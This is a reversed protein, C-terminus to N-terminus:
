FRNYFINATNWKDKPVPKGKPYGLCVVCLPDLHEPMSLLSRIALAREASPWVGCWVSGVGLANAALLINETAASCDLVWNLRGEGEIAKKMDGCVVILRSAEGAMKGFPMKEAFTKKLEKDSVVVFAWPQKNMATPAAMGAKLITNIVSDSIEESSYERVSTRSMICELAKENTQSNSDTSVTASSIAEEKENEDNRDNLAYALRISVGVLAAALLLIIWNTSKM